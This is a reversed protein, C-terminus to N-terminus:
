CAPGDRSHHCADSRHRLDSCERFPVVEVQDEDVCWDVGTISSELLLLRFCRDCELLENAIVVLVLKRLIPTDFPHALALHEDVVIHRCEWSQFLQDHLKSVFDVAWEPQGCNVSVNGALGLQSTYKMFTRAHLWGGFIESQRCASVVCCSCSSFRLLLAPQYTGGFWRSL